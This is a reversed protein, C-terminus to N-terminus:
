FVQIFFSRGTSLSRCAVFLEAFARAELKREEILVSSSEEVERLYYRHHNRLKALCSLHYKSELAILDGGEIKALLSTDNLDKDITCVSSDTELMSFHHLKGCGECYICKDKDLSQRLPCTHKPGCINGVELGIDPANRKRAKELKDQGFKLYYSKHWKAKNQVFDQETTNEPLHTLPLPLIELEKFDKVRDLFCQYPISKDAKGPANLLCKM